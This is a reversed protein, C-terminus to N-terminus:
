VAGDGRTPRSGAAKRGARKRAVEDLPTGRPEPQAREVHEIQELVDILRLSLAAVDRASRCGDVERALRDRLVRLAVLRSGSRVADALQEAM